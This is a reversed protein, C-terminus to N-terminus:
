KSNIFLYLGIIIGILFLFAGILIKNQFVYLHVIHQGKPIKIGLLGDYNLTEFGEKIKWHTHFNQNIILLNDKDTKVELAIKNPSWKELQVVSNNSDIFYYEGRYDSDGKTSVSKNSTIGM